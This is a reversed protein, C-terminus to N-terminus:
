PKPSREPRLREPRPLSDSAWVPRLAFKLDQADGLDRKRHIRQSIYGDVARMLEPDIARITEVRVTGDPGIDEAHVRKLFMPATLTALEGGRELRGLWKPRLARAVEIRFRAILEARKVEPVGLSDLIAILSPNSELDGMTAVFQSNTESEIIYHPAYLTKEAHFERTELAKKLEDTRKSSSRFGLSSLRYKVKHPAIGLRSAIMPITKGGLYMEKLLDLEEDTWSYWGDM